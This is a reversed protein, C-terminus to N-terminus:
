AEDKTGPGDAASVRVIKGPSIPQLKLLQVRSKEYVPVTCTELQGEVHKTGGHGCAPCNKPDPRLGNHVHIVQREGVKTHVTEFPEHRIAETVGLEALREPTADALVEWNGPILV